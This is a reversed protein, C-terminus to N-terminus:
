FVTNSMVQYFNLFFSTSHPSVYWVQLGTNFTQPAHIRLELVPGAVFFFFFFFTLFLSFLSLIIIDM